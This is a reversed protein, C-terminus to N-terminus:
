STARHSKALQVLNGTEVYYVREAINVAHDAIRELYHAVFLLWSAQVVISPDRRMFDHLENRLQHFMRDVEDDAAVVKDVLELDHNVFSALADRLMQRVSAAMRPIDVLPKFFTERALHRAAKAIDVSHDGIRELDTIIKLATGILRLDRAVPQQLAIMRMCGTEIQLDLSDMADDAAIVEEALPVNQETLARMAKALMGDADSGMELLQRRLADLQEDFQLRTVAM